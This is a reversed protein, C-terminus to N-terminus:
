YIDYFFNINTEIGTRNALEDSAYYIVEQVKGDWELSTGGRAGVHLTGTATNWSSSDLSTDALQAGGDLSGYVTNTTSQRGAYLLFQNNSASAVNNQDSDTYLLRVNNSQIRINLGSTGNINFVEDTTTSTGQAVIAIANNLPMSVNSTSNLADDAGDFQVAPKGNGDVIVAGSSVIQPRAGSSPQTANNGSGSQDYWTEVFVDNSGAYALLAVTDLEGDANFGIDQTAGGVTDQVKIAFGTYSNSLKRLSYGAAAGSYQDLLGAIEIGYYDGVNDEISLRNQSTKASTYFIYEQAKGLLNHAAQTSAGLVSFSGTGSFSQSTTDAGDYSM